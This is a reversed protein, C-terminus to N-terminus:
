RHFSRFVRCLHLERTQNTDSPVVSALSVGWLNTVIEFLRKNQPNIVVKHYRDGNLGRLPLGTELGWGVEGVLKTAFVFVHERLTVSSNRCHESFVPFHAPSSHADAIRCQDHKRMRPSFMASKSSKWFTASLFLSWFRTKRSFSVRSVLQLDKRLTKCLYKAFPFNPVVKGGYVLINPM